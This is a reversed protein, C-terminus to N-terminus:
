FVTNLMLLDVSNEVESTRLKAVNLHRISLLIFGDLILKTGEFYWTQTAPMPLRDDVFVQWLLLM